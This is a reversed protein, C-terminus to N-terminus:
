LCLFLPTPSMPPLHLHPNLACTAKVFSRFQSGLMWTSHSVIMQLETELPMQYRQSGIVGAYVHVSACVYNLIIVIFLLVPPFHLLPLLPLPLSSPIFSLHSLCFYRISRLDEM